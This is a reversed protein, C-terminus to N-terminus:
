ACGGKKVLVSIVINSLLIIGSAALIPVPYTKGTEEVSDGFVTMGILKNNEDRASILITDDSLEEVSFQYGPSTEFGLMGALMDSQESTDTTKLFQNQEEETMMDFYEQKQDGPVSAIYDQKEELPMDEFEAPAIPEPVDEPKQTQNGNSTDDWEGAMSSLIAIAQDCQESTWERGSGMAIYDQIMDEPMGIQYAYAIVDGVTTASAIIPTDHCAAIAATMAFVTMIKFRHKM